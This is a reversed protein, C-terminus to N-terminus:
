TAHIRLKAVYYPCMLLYLRWRIYCICDRGPTTLLSYYSYCTCHGSIYYTILLSYCTSRVNHVAQQLPAEWAQTERLLPKVGRTPDSLVFETGRLTRASVWPVLQAVHARFTKSGANHYRTSSPSAWSSMAGWKTSACRAWHVPRRDAAAAAVGDADASATPRLVRAREFLLIAAEDLTIKPKAATIPPSDVFSSVLAAALLSLLAAGAWQIEPSM